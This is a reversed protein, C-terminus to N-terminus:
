KSREVVKVVAGSINSYAYLYDVSNNTNVTSLTVKTGSALYEILIDLNSQVIEEGNLDYFKITYTASIKGATVVVNNTHEGNFLVTYDGATGDFSQSAYTENIQYNTEDESTLTLSGFDFKSIQNYDNKTEITIATGYEASKINFIDVLKISCLVGAIILCLCTLYHYWKM